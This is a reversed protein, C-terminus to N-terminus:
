NSLTSGSGARVPAAGAGGTCGLVPCGGHDKWCALHVSAGCKACRVEEEDDDLDDHCFGCRASAERSVPRLRAADLAKAARRAIELLRELAGERAEIGIVLEGGRVVLEADPFAALLDIAAERLGEKLAARVRLTDATEVLAVDDLVPDQTAAPTKFGLLVAVARGLTLRTLRLRPADSLTVRAELRLVSLCDGDTTEFVSVRLREDKKELNEDFGLGRAAAIITDRLM